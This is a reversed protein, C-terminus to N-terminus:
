VRPNNRFRQNNNQVMYPVMNKSIFDIIEQKKKEDNLMRLTGWLRLAPDLKRRDVRKLFQSMQQPNMNFFQRVNNVDTADGPVPLKGTDAKHLSRLSRISTGVGNLFEEPRLLYPNNSSRNIAKPTDWWYKSLASISNKNATIADMIHGLEHYYTTDYVTTPNNNYLLDVVEKSYGSSNLWDQKEKTLLNGGAAQNRYLNLPNHPSNTYANRSGMLIVQPKDRQYWYASANSGRLYEQLRGSSEAVNQAGTVYKNSVFPFHKKFKNRLYNYVFSTSSSTPPPTYTRTHIPTDLGVSPDNERTFQALTMKARTSRPMNNWRNLAVQSNLRSLDEDTFGPYFMRQAEKGSIVSDYQRTADASNLEKSVTKKLNDWFNM